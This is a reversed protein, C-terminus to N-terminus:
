LKIDHYVVPFPQQIDLHLGKGGLEHALVAEYVSELLGPGLTTHVRYASDVIIRAIENEHMSLNERLAAFSGLVLLPLAWNDM